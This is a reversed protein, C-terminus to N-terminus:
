SRAVGQLKEATRMGSLGLMGGTITMLDGLDLEPVPYGAGVAMPRGIFHWALSTGGVWGIFPRWGSVFVSPHAAEVKNVDTQLRAQEIAQDIAKFEGDQQLKALELAAAAKAAPDPWARDIVKGILGAILDGILAARGEDLGAAM